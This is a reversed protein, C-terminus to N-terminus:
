TWRGDEMKMKMEMEMEMEMAMHAWAGVEAPSGDNPELISPRRWAALPPRRACRRCLPAIQLTRLPRRLTRMVADLQSTCIQAPTSMGRVATATTREDVRLERNDEM